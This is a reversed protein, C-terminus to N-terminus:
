LGEVPLIVAVPNIPANVPLALPEDPEHVPLAAVAVAKALALFIPPTENSPVPLISKGPTLLAPFWFVDPFAAPNDAVKATPLPPVPAVLKVALPTKTPFPVDAILATSKDVLPFIKIPSPEPLGDASATPLLSWTKVASEDSAVPTM